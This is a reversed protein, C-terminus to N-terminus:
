AHDMMEVVQRVCAAVQAEWGSWDDALEGRHVDRARNMAVRHEPPLHAALRAAAEDKSVLTGSRLTVWMRALTLLAQKEEGVLNAAVEPLLARIAAQLDATPVCPLIDAPEPGHLSIGHRRAHTILLALDPDCTPGAITGSSLEDRLWEGFQLARQAPHRWPLIASTVVCTLELPRGDAHGPPRSLALLEGMLARRETDDPSRQLLALLDIDSAPEPGGHAFSGYLWVGVLDAGFRHRLRQTVALAQAPVSTTM